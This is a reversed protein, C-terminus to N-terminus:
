FVLAPMNMSIESGSEFSAEEQQLCRTTKDKSKGLFM